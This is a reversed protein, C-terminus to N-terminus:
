REWWTRAAFIMPGAIVNALYSGAYVTIHGTLYATTKAFIGGYVTVNGSGLTVSGNVIIAGYWVITGNVCLNGNVLLLGYGTINSNVTYDCTSNPGGDLFIIRPRSTPSDCTTPNACYGFDIGSGTNITGGGTIYTDSNQTLRSFPPFPPVAGYEPRFTSNKEYKLTAQNFTLYQALWDEYIITKFWLRVNCRGNPGGTCSLATQDAAPVFDAPVNVVERVWTYPFSVRSGSPSIYDQAPGSPNTCGYLALPGARRNATDTPPVDARWELDPAAAVFGPGDSAITAFPAPPGAPCSFTTLVTGPVRTDPVAQGTVSADFPINRYQARRTGPYWRDADSPTQLSQCQSNTYCAAADYGDLPVKKRIGWGSYTYQSADDPVDVFEIYSQSYVDGSAVTAANGQEAFEHGMLIDAQAMAESMGIGLLSLRRRAGGATAESRIELVAGAPGRRIPVVQIKVRAPDIAGSFPDTYNRGAEIRRVGEELGAQALELAITGDRQLGSILVENGAIALMGTILILMLVMFLLTMLLAVGREDKVRRIM